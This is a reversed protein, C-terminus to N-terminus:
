LNIISYHVEIIDKLKPLPLRPTASGLGVLFLLECTLPLLFSFSLSLV